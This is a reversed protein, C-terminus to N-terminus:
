VWGFLTNISNEVFFRSVIKHIKIRIYHEVKDNKALIFSLNVIPNRVSVM